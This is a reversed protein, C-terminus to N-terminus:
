PPKLGQKDQSNAQLDKRKNLCVLKIASISQLSITNVKFHDAVARIHSRGKVM